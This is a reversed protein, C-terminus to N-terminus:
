EFMRSFIHIPSNDAYRSFSKYVKRLTKDSLQIVLKNYKNYILINYTNPECKPPACCNTTIGPMIYLVNIYLSKDYKVYKITNSTNEYCIFGNMSYKIFQHLKYVYKNSSKKSVFLSTQHIEM